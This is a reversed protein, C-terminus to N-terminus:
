FGLELQTHWRHRSRTHDRHHSASGADGLPSGRDGYYIPGSFPTRKTKVRLLQQAVLLEDEGLAHM